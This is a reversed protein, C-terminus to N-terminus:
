KILKIERISYNNLYLYSLLGNSINMIINFDKSNYKLDLDNEKNSYYVTDLDKCKNLYEEMYLMYTRYNMKSENLYSEYIVEDCISYSSDNIDVEYINDDKFIFYKYTNESHILLNGEKDLTYDSLYLRFHIKSIYM